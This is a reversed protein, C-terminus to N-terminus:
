PQEGWRNIFSVEVAPKRKAPKLVADKTYAVPFLVTQTVGKPIALLEAVKQQQALHLSTWTSGLGRSRLAVMFSWAAPLISGYFGVQGAVHDIGPEGIACVLILVPFDQIRNALDYQNSKLQLTSQEVLHQLSDRYVEAIKQKLALEEIILFRWNEANMGTPAQTAVDICQFILEREVPKDFDLRRRVSRTTSLAWNIEMKSMVQKPIAVNGGIRSCSCECDQWKVLVAQLAPM